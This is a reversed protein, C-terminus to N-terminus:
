QQKQQVQRHAQREPIKGVTKSNVAGCDASDNCGPRVKQVM